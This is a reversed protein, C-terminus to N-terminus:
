CIRRNFNLLHLFTFSRRWWEAVNRDRSLYAAADTLLHTMAFAIALTLTM